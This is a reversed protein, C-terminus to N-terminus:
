AGDLHLLQAGTDRMVMRVEREDLGDIEELFDMPSTLGEPHPYDSGLCISDIGVLEKLVNVEHRFPLISLFVHRRFLEGPPPGQWEGFSIAARQHFPIAELAALTPQVWAGNSEVSLLRADPFRNFTGELVLSGVMHLMAQGTVLLQFATHDKMATVHGAPSYIDSLSSGTGDGHIAIVAGAEDVRAWFADCSPGGLSHGAGPGFPFLDIVRAGEELLLELEAVALDVDALSILPTTFLRDKYSFGWEENAWRNYARLNAYGAEVDEDMLERALILANTPHLVSAQTNREDMVELRSDRDVLAPVDQIRITESPLAAKDGEMGLGEALSSVGLRLAAPPLVREGALQPYYRVPRDGIYVTATEGRGFNAPAETGERVFRVARDRYRPDIHRTFCDDTEYIHNDLDVLEYTESV